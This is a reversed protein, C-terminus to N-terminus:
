RLMPLLSAFEDTWVPGGLTEPAALGTWDTIAPTDLVSRERALLLWESSFQWWDDTDPHHILHALHLQARHANGEIARRLDIVRNSVNIALVGRPALRALYIAFAEETLLHIPVADGSFADLVLLDYRPLTNARVEAELLLRGDGLKVDIRAPSNALFDFYEHAVTIVHPDIEYFRLTDGPMGYVALTGVGLGLVGIHRGPTQNRRSLARGIGGEPTYYSTPYGRYDPHTLQIGHTTTGHAMFRANARDDAHTHDVVTIVGHFSRLSAVTGPPVRLASPLYYYGALLVIGVAAALGPATSPARRRTQWVAGGLGLLTMVTLAPQGTTVGIVNEWHSSSETPRLGPVVILAAGQGVWLMLLARHDRRRWCQWATFAILGSWLIPFDIDTSFLGPSILAVWLTGLAGGGALTLYFDTLQAPHPRTRYLEGHCIVGAVALALLHSILFQSFIVQTGFIRLDLSIAALLTLAAAWLPPRYWSRESFTVVFSLLYITIPAIWLFPVPAVDASIAATTAALLATGLAAGLLWPLRDRWTVKAAVSPPAPSVSPAVSGVKFLRLACGGIVLGFLGFGISWMGAQTSRSFFPELGLPYALLALLSGLNSWAYLPYPSRSPHARHFWRQVLPGTAALLVFLPGISTTLLMLLEPIPTAAAIAAPPADPIPPLWLLAGALLGLHLGIQRSVPRLRALVHAYSYGLFLASQFFLLCVSWIGPSGGFWPLVFRGILPQVLFLLFAGLFIAIAFPAM